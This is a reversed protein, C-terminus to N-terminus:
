KLEKWDPLVVAAPPLGKYAHFIVHIDIREALKLFLARPREIQYDDLLLSFTARVIFQDQDALLSRRVILNATMSRYGGHLYFNGSGKLTYDSDSVWTQPLPSTSVLQFFAHPYDKTHLHRDRMHQDRMEIGTKLSILSVRLLGSVASDSLTFGGSMDTTSGEIFEMKADSRFFVTDTGKSQNLGYEAGAAPISLACIFFCVQTIRM